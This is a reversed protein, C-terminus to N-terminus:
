SSTCFNQIYTRAYKAIASVVSNLRVANIASVAPGVGARQNENEPVGAARLREKMKDIADNKRDEHLVLQGCLERVRGRGMGGGPRGRARGGSGGGSRARLGPLVVRSRASRRRARLPLLRRLQPVSASDRAASSRPWAGARDAVPSPAQAGGAGIMIHLVTGGAGGRGPM